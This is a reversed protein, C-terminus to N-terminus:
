LRLGVSTNIFWDNLYGHTENHHVSHDYAAAYSFKKGNIKVNRISTADILHPDFNNTQDQVDIDEYNFRTLKYKDSMGVDFFNKCSMKIRRM